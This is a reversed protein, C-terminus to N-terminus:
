RTLQSVAGGINGELYELHVEIQARARLHFVVRETLDEATEWGPTSEESQDKSVTTQVERLAGVGEAKCQTYQSNEGLDKKDGGM